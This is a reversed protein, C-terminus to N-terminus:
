ENPNDRSGGASEWVNMGGGSGRPRSGRDRIIVPQTARIEDGQIRASFRVSPGDDRKVEIPLDGGAPNAKLGTISEKIVAAFADADAVQQNKVSLVVYQPLLGIQGVAGKPTLAVIVAGDRIEPFRWAVAPFVTLVKAGEAEVPTSYREVLKGVTDTNFTFRVFVLFRSGTGVLPEYEEWYQESPQAPIFTSGTKRLAATVNRRGDRVRKKASDYATGDESERAAEFDGLARGRNESYIKRVEQSFLANNGIQQDLANTLAELAAESAESTAEEKTESFASVGTCVLSGGEPKCGGSFRTDSAIWAPRADASKSKLAGVADRAKKVKAAEQQKQYNMFVVVGVATLAAFAAAILITLFNSRRGSAAAMAMTTAVEKKEPKREQVEKIFKRLAPEVQPKQLSTLHSLLTESAACATPGGCDGCKM